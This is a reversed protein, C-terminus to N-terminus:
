RRLYFNSSQPNKEPSKTCLSKVELGPQTLLKLPPGIKSVHECGERSPCICLLQCPKLAHLPNSESHSLTVLDPQGFLDLLKDSSPNIAKHRCPRHCRKTRVSQALNLSRPSIMIAAVTGVSRVRMKGRMSARLKPGLTINRELLGGGAGPGRPNENVDNDLAQQNLVFSKM